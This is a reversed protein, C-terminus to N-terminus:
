RKLSGAGQEPRWVSSHAKGLDQERAKREAPLTMEGTGVWCGWVRARSPTGKSTSIRLGPSGNWEGGFGEQTVEPRESM